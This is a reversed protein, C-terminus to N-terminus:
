SFNYHKKVPNRIDWTCSLGRPFTVLDGKGFTV